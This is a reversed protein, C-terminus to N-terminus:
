FSPTVNGGNEGIIVVKQDGLSLMRGRFALAREPLPVATWSAGDASAWVNEDEDYLVFQEGAAGVRALLSGEALPPLAVNSWTVGDTSRWLVSTETNDAFRFEGAILFSTGNAAIGLLRPSLAGDPAPLLGGPFWDAAGATAWTRIGSARDIWGVGAAVVVGDDAAAVARPMMSADTPQEDVAFTTWTGEAHRTAVTFDSGSTSYPEWWQGTLVVHVLGGSIAIGALSTFRFSLRGSIRQDIGTETPGALQWGSGDDTAIWLDTLAGDASVGEVPPLGMAVVALDDDGGVVILDNLAAIPLEGLVLPLGLAVLDATETWTGNVLEVIRVGTPSQGDPEKVGVGMLRSGAAGVTFSSAGLTDWGPIPAWDGLVPALVTTSTVIAASGDPKTTDDSVTSSEGGCAALSMACFAGLALM